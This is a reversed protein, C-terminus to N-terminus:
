RNLAGGYLRMCIATTRECNVVASVEVGMQPDSNTPQVSCPEMYKNFHLNRKGIKPSISSGLEEDRYEEIVM